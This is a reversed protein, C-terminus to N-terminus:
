LTFKKIKVALKDHRNQLMFGEEWVPVELHVNKRTKRATQSEKSTQFM